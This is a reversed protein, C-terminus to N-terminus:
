KSIRTKTKCKSKKKKSSTKSKKTKSLSKKKTSSKKRKTSTKSKKLSKTSTKLETADVDALTVKGIRPKYIVQVYRHINRYEKILRTTIRVILGLAKTVDTNKQYDFVEKKRYNFDPNDTIVIYNIFGNRDLDSLGRHRKDDKGIDFMYVIPMYENFPSQIGWLTAYQKIHIKIEDIRKNYLKTLFRFGVLNHIRPEYRLHPIARKIQMNNNSHKSHIDKAFLITEPVYGVEPKLFTGFTIFDVSETIDDDEKFSDIFPFMAISLLDEDVGYYWMYELTKIDNSSYEKIFSDLYYKLQKKSIDRHGLRISSKDTKVGFMSANHRFIKDINGTKFANITNPVDKVYKEMYKIYENVHHKYTDSNKGDSMHALTIDYNRMYGTAFPKDGKEWNKIRHSMWKSIPNSSNVCWFVDVNPDFMAYFRSISGFTYPHGEYGRAKLAPCDYSVLEVYSYSKIRNLYYNIWDRMFKAYNKFKKTSAKVIDNYSNDSPDPKYIDKDIHYKNNTKYTDYMSDYYIRYIWGDGMIKPFTEVTKILGTVYISSKYTLYNEQPTFICTSIVKKHKKNVIKVEKLNFM